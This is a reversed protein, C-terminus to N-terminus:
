SELDRWIRADDVRLRHAREAPTEPGFIARIFEAQPTPEPTRRSALLGLRVCAEEWDSLVIRDVAGAALARKMLHAHEIARLEILGDILFANGTADQVEFHELREALVSVCEDHVTADAAGILALAQSAEVWVMVSVDGRGLMAVLAPVAARGIKEFVAPFDAMLNSDAEDFRYEYEGDLRTKCRDLWVRLDILPDIAEVARLQGLARWAHVPAWQETDVASAHLLPDTAMRILAPIQARTLGFTAYELWHMTQADQGGLSLLTAVSGNYSPSM